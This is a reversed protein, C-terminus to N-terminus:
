ICSVEDYRLKQLIATLTREFLKKDTEMYM